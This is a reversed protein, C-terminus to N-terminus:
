SESVCVCVCVCVCVTNHFLLFYVCFYKPIVFYRMHLTSKLPFFIYIICISSLYYMCIYMSPYTSLLLLHALINGIPSNPHLHHLSTFLLEKYKQVAKRNKQSNSIIEFLFNLFFLLIKDGEEGPKKKKKKQDQIGCLYLHGTQFFWYQM